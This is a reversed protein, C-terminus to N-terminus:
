CKGNGIECEVWKENGWNARKGTQENVRRRTEGEVNQTRHERWRETNMVYERVRIGMREYVRVSTNGYVRLGIRTHERSGSPMPTAPLNPITPSQNPHNAPTFHPNARTPHEDPIPPSDSGNAAHTTARLRGLWGHRRARDTSKANANARERQRSSSLALAHTCYACDIFEFM